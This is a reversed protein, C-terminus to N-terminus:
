AAYAYTTSNNNASILNGTKVHGPVVVQSVFEAEATSDLEGGLKYGFYLVFITKLLANRLRIRLKKYM